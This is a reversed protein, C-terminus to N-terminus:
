RVPDELLANEAESLLELLEERNLFFKINDIQVQYLNQAVKMIM